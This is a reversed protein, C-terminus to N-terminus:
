NELWSAHEPLGEYRDARLLRPSAFCEAEGRYVALLSDPGRWWNDAIGAVRPMPELSALDLDQVLEGSLRTIQRAWVTAHHALAVSEVWGEVTAHLPTWRDAWIGFEGGPGVMFSYPVSCRPVGAEFWWGEQPSKEPTDASLVRPGGDYWPAPPLVLGGWQAEFEAVRDIVSGPIGLGLWRVRYQEVPLREVRVAHVRLFAAASHSLGGPVATVLYSVRWLRTRSGAM